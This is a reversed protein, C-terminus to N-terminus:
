TCAISCSYHQGLSIVPDIFTRAVTCGDGQLQREGGDGGGRGRRRKMGCICCPVEDIMRSRDIGWLEEFLPHKSGVGVTMRYVFGYIWM